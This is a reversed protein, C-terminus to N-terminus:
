YHGKCGLIILNGEELKYVLRNCSDIRASCLGRKSGKLLEAKGIPKNNRQLSKILSNIKKLTKPDQKQWYLYEDWAESSWIIQGAM